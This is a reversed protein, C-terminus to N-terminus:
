NVILIAIKLLDIQTEYRSCILNTVYLWVKYILVKRRLKKYGYVMQFSNSFVLIIENGSTFNLYRESLYINVFINQTVEFNPVRLMRM